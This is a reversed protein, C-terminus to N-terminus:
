VDFRFKEPLAIGFVVSYLKFTQIGGLLGWVGWFVGFGVVLGLVCGAFLNILLNGVVM